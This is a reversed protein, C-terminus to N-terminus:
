SRGREPYSHRPVLTIHGGAPANVDIDIKGRHQATEGEFKLNSTIVVKSATLSAGNISVDYEGTGQYQRDKVEQEGGVGKVQGPDSLTLDAKMAVDLPGTPYGPGSVGEFPGGPAVPAQPVPTTTPPSTDVPADQVCGAAVVVVTLLIVILLELVSRKM